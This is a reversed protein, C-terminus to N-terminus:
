VLELTGWLSPDETFPLEPGLSFTQWGLEHDKVAYSFGLRPYEDPDYGNLAAAPIFAELSYGTAHRESRVRLTGGASVKPPEKARHIPVFQAIPSNEGSGAGTPLFAFCHCFRSARHITHTDRTDIWVHLGDSDAVRTDRCWPTRSKGVVRVQFALGEKNWAGRLDAFLKNGELEGFSPIRYKAELQVGDTGWVQDRYRCPVAFRFLFVPSVLQDSM